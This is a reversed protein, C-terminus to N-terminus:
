SKAEPKGENNESRGGNRSVADEEAQDALLRRVDLYVNRFGAGIGLFFFIIKLWPSTGLWEDLWYGVLCGVFIGSALHLGVMSARGASGFMGANKMNWHEIFKKM